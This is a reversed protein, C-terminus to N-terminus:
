ICKCETCACARTYLCKTIFCPREKFTSILHLSLMVQHLLGSGCSSKTCVTIYVYVYVYLFSSLLLGVKWWFLFSCKWGHVTKKFRADFKLQLVKTINYIKFSFLWRYSTSLYQIKVWHLAFSTCTYLHRLNYYRSYVKIKCM